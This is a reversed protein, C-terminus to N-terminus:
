TAKINLDLIKKKFTFIYMGKLVLPLAAYKNIHKVNLM